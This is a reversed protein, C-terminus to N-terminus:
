EGKLRQELIRESSSFKRDELMLPLRARKASMVTFNEKLEALPIGETELQVDSNKINARFHVDDNSIEMMQLDLRTEKDEVYEGDDTEEMWVPSSDWDLIYAVKLQKVAKALHLIRKLEPKDITVEARSINTNAYENYCHVILTFKATM